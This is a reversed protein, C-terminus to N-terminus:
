DVRFEDFEVMAGEGDDVAFPEIVPGVFDPGSLEATDISGLNSWSSGNGFSLEYSGETYVIKFSLNGDLEVEKSEVRSIKKEVNLVEFVM